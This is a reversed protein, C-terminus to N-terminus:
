NTLRLLSPLVKKIEGAIIDIGDENGIELSGGYSFRDWERIHDWGASIVPGFLILLKLNQDIFREDNWVAKFEAYGPPVTPWKERTANLSQIPADTWFVIVPITTVKSYPGSPKEDFFSIVKHKTPIGFYDKAEQRQNDFWNSRLGEDLCAGAAEAPDDGGGADESAIFKRFAEGQVEKTVGMAKSPNLDIFDPHEVLGGEYQLNNAAEYANEDYVDRYFIPRVRIKLHDEPIEEIEEILEDAFSTAYQKM